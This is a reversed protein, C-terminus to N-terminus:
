SNSLMQFAWAVEGAKESGEEEGLCSPFAPWFAAYGFVPFDPCGGERSVAGGGGGRTIPPENTGWDPEELRSERCEPCSGPHTPLPM